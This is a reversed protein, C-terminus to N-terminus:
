KDSDTGATPGPSRTKSPTQIATKEFDVPLGAVTASFAVTKDSSNSDTAGARGLAPAPMGQLQAIANRLDTAFLYGDQYRTEPRKSLSLAVIDALSVPLEPRIVRIDPAEESAIKYMLEAM